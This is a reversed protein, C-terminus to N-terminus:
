RFVYVQDHGGGEDRRPHVAGGVAPFPSYRPTHTLLLVGCLPVTHNDRQRERRVEPVEEYYTTSGDANFVLVDHLFDSMQYLGSSDQIRSIARDFAAEEDGEDGEDGEGGYVVSPWKTGFYAAQIHRFQARVLYRFGHIFGGASKRFDASHMLCGAYWRNPQAPDSWWDGIAPFKGHSVNVLGDRQTTFGGAYVVTDIGFQRHALMMDKCGAEDGNRWSGDDDNVTDLSKLQYHDLLGGNHMRVDGVYHTKWSFKPKNKYIMHVAAACGSLMDISEFAANGSGLVAIHKGKCFASDGEEV